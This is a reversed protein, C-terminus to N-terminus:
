FKSSKTRSESKKCFESVIDTFLESKEEPPVHGCDTLVVLRSNLIEQCLKYGGKIPIITDQDGWIILTAQNILHADQEIRKANWNRSTALLSHHGDAANLPRRIAQMREETILHHNARAITGRMRHRLFFKSDAIFPTIVEGIGRFAALRLLPHDRPENNTVPDVLVLKDITEPYDLTMELAVAGGYSNGVIIARGIGLRNIFRSVMRAQSRISYDFSSPKESYGFGILDVAIVRFGADALMPAATKWVYVSATYGHILIIPPNAADGFEQYHVRTGDVNVFHSHEAHPVQDAVDEWRVTKARTFMKVAVAAAIGGGFALALDRKKM